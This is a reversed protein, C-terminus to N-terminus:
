QMNPRSVADSSHPSSSPSQKLRVKFVKAGEDASRLANLEKVFAQWGNPFSLRWIAAVLKIQDELILNNARREADENALQGCGAAIIPGLAEGFQGILQPGVDEASMGGIFMTIVKPYRAAISAVANGNLGRVVLRTGGNVRVAEVATSDAIDLLSAM